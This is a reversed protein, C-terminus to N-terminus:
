VFCLCIMDAHTHNNKSFVIYAIFSMAMDQRSPLNDVLIPLIDTFAFKSSM